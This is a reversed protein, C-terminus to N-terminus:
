CFPLFEINMSLFICHQLAFFNEKSCFSHLTWTSVTNEMCLMYVNAMKIVHWLLNKKRSQLPNQTKQKFHQQKGKKGM